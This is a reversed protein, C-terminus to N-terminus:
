KGLAKFQGNEVTYTIAGKYVNNGNTYRFDVGSVAIYDMTTIEKILAAADNTGVNLAAKMALMAGDYACAAFGDCVSAPGYLKNYDKMFDVVVQDFADPTMLEDTYVPTTACIILGDAKTGVLDLFEKKLVDGACVFQFEEMGLQHAQILLAAVDSYTGNVYIVKPKAEKIKSLTPTFDRTEGPVYNETLIVKGGRETYKETLIKANTVGLDTNYHFIAMDANNFRTSILEAAAAMEVTAVPSIPIMYEGMGPFDIHSTNPSIFPMKADEYVPACAMSIASGFSGIVAFVKPDEIIKNAVNIAEIQDTKDDYIELEVMVGNLGGAENFKNVAMQLANKYSIGYQMNAGTLPISVALKNKTYKNQTNDGTATTGGDKGSNGTTTCATLLSLALLLVLCIALIKKM